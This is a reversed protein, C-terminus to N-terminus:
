RSFGRAPVVQGRITALTGKYDEDTIAKMDHFDELDEIIQAVTAEYQEPGLEEAQFCQNLYSLKQVLHSSYGDGDLGWKFGRKLNKTKENLIAFQYGAESLDGESKQFDLTSKKEMNSLSIVPESVYHWIGKITGKLAPIKKLRYQGEGVKKLNDKKLAEFDRAAKTFTKVVPFLELNEFPAGGIPVFRTYRMPVGRGMMSPPGFLGRGGRGFGRGYGGGGYATGQEWFTYGYGGHTHTPPVMVTRSPPGYSYAM